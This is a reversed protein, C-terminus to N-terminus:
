RREEAARTRALQALEEVFAAHHGYASDLDIVFLLDGDGARQAVDHFKGLEQDPRSLSAILESGKLEFTIGPPVLQKLTGKPGKVEVGDAKVSVTVGKPVPIPKKGIRSM